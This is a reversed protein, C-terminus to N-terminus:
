FQLSKEDEEPGVTTRLYGALNNAPTTTPQPGVNVNSEEKTLSCLCPLGNRWLFVDLVLVSVIVFGLVFALAWYATQSSAESTDTGSLLDLESPQWTCGEFDLSWAHKNIIWDENLVVFKVYQMEEPANEACEEGWRELLPQDSTYNPWYTACIDQTRIHERISYTLYVNECTPDQLGVPYAHLADYAYELVASYKWTLGADDSLAAVLSHANDVRDSATPESIFSPQPNYILMVLGSRLQIAQSMLDANPIPTPEPTTWSLGDDLSTARQLTQGNMDRLFAVLHPSYKHTRIISAQIFGGFAALSSNSTMNTVTWSEGNTNIDRSMRIVTQYNEIAVGEDLHHVPIMLQQSFGDDSKALSEIPQYHVHPNEFLAEEAFMIPATWTVGDDLTETKLLTQNLANAVWDNEWDPDTDWLCSYCGQQFIMVLKDEKRDFWLIMNDHFTGTDPQHTADVPYEFISDGSAIRTTMIHGTLRTSSVGVNIAVHLSRTNPNLEIFNRYVIEHEPAGRIYATIRGDRERYLRYLDRVTVDRDGYDTGYLFITPGYQYTWGAQAWLASLVFFLLM